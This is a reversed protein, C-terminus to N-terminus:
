NLLSGRIESIRKKVIEECKNRVNIYEINGVLNNLENVDDNLCYLEDSCVQGDALNVSCIYKFQNVVVAYKILKRALDCPGRGGSEIIVYSGHNKNFVPSGKFEQQKKVGVLELLTPAFDVHSVAHDITSPKISSSYFFMPVKVFEDYFHLTKHGGRKVLNNPLGHDATVAIITNEHLGSKHLNSIVEKLQLDIYGCAKNFNVDSHKSKREAPDSISFLNLSPFQFARSNYNGEHVDMFHAWLFFPTKSNVEIWSLMFNKIYEANIFHNYKKISYAHSLGFKHQGRLMLMEIINNLRSLVGGSLGNGYKSENVICFFREKLNNINLLLDSSNEDFRRLENLIANEMYEFDFSHVISNEVVMDLNIERRKGRCFRLLYEYSERINIAVSNEFEKYSIKNDSYLQNFYDLYNKDFSNWFKKISYFEFFENFGRDYGYYSSLFNVTSIGATHYGNNRLVEALSIPRDVIGRNYGGHDLPLSSTFISPFAMQTPQSNSYSSLCNISNDMLYELTPCSDKQNVM